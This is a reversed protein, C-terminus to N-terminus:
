GSTDDLYSIKTLGGQIPLLLPREPSEPHLARSRHYHNFLAMHQLEAVRKAFPVIDGIAVGEGYRRPPAVLRLLNREKSLNLANHKVHETGEGELVLIFGGEYYDSGIYQPMSSSDFAFPTGKEENRRQDIQEPDLQKEFPALALGLGHKYRLFLYEWEFYVRSLEGLTAVLLTVGDGYASETKESPWRQDKPVPPVGFMGCAKEPGLKAWADITNRPKGSKDGVVKRAFFGESQIAEVVTALDEIYQCLESIASGILGNTMEQYVRSEASVLDDPIWTSYDAVLQEREKLLKEYSRIKVYRWWPWYTQTYFQFQAFSAARRNDETLGPYDEPREHDQLAALSREFAETREERVEKNFIKMHRGKTHRNYGCAAYFWLTGLTAASTLRALAESDPSTSNNLKWIPEAALLRRLHSM